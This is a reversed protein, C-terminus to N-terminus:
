NSIKGRKLFAWNLSNLAHNMRRSLGSLIPTKSIQERGGNM